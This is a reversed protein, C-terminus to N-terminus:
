THIYNGMNTERDRQTDTQTYTHIETPLAHDPYDKHDTHIYICVYTNTCTHIYTHTLVHTRVSTHTRVHTHIYTHPAIDNLAIYRLATYTNIRRAHMHTHMYKRMHIHTYLFQIIQTIQM